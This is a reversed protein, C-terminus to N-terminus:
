ANNYIICRRLVSLADLLLNVNINLEFHKSDISANLSSLEMFICCGISDISFCGQMCKCSNFAYNWMRLRKREISCNMQTFNTITMQQPYGHVVPVRIMNTIIIKSTDFSSFLQFIGYDSDCEVQAVFLCAHITHRILNQRTMPVIRTYKGFDSKHRVFFPSFDRLDFSHLHMKTLQISVCVCM